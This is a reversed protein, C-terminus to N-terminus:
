ETHIVFAPIESYIVSCMGIEWTRCNQRLSSSSIKECEEIPRIECYNFVTGESSLVEEIKQM